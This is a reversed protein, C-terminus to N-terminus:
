VIDLVSNAIFLQASYYTGMILLEAHPVKLRFKNIILITDSTYFLVSGIAGISTTVSLNHNAQVLASWIMVSILVAYITGFLALVPKMQPVVLGLIAFSIAAVAVGLLVETRTAELFLNVGGGLMPIYISQAIAFAAVGLPFYESFVIYADGICSFILGWFIQSLRNVSGPASSTVPARSDIVQMGAIIVLLAVPCCKLILKSM